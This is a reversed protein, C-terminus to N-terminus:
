DAIRKEGSIKQYPAIDQTLEMVGLYQNNHDRIAIYRIFILKDGMKIWFDEQDKKGSKFDKILKDVIHVSSQPHCNEVKRGIVSISRAFARSEGHSFYKVTDEKGVFTIDLPFSEFIAKIEESNLSGTPFTIENGHHTFKPAPNSKITPEARIMFYGYDESDNRIQDWEEEKLEKNAMSFLITEEKNVMDKMKDIIDNFNEKNPGKVLQKIQTRIEDHVGWMVKPPTEIGHKELYPFLLNEKRLYHCEFAKFTEILLPYDPQNLTLDNLVQMLKENELHMMHLPYPIDKNKHINEISTGVISAHVNCLRQIESVPLGKEILSQEVAALESPDVLSFNKRFEEEVIEIDEGNHLKMLIRELVEEREKSNNIYESM